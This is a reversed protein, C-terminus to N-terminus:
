SALPQHTACIDMEALVRSAVTDMAFDVEAVTQTITSSLSFLDDCLQSFFIM